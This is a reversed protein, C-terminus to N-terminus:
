LGQRVILRFNGIKSLIKSICGNQAINPAFKLSKFPQKTRPIIRFDISGEIKLIKSSINGTALFQEFNNGM